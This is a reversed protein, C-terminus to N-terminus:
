PPYLTSRKNVKAYLDESPAVAPVENYKRLLDSYIVSVDDARDNNPPEQSPLIEAYVVDPQSPEISDAPTTTSPDNAYITHNGLDPQQSQAIDGFFFTPV